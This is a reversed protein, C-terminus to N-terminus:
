NIVVTEGKIVKQTSTILRDVLSAKVLVIDEGNLRYVYRRNETPILELVSPQLDYGPFFEFEVRVTPQATTEGELPADKLLGIITQYYKGFNDKELQTGNYTTTYNYSDKGLSSTQEEDKERTREFVYEGDPTTVKLRSVCEINMLYLLNSRMSFVDQNAWAVMSSDSVRFVVNVGERMIYTGDEDTNGVMLKYEKDNMTYAAIGKPATLGYKELDEQTPNACVAEDATLSYFYPMVDDIFNQNIGERIPEVMIYPSLNLVDAINTSTNTKIVIPQPFNAGSLTITGFDPQEQNGSSDTGLENLLATDIYLLPDAFVGASISASYVKKDGEAMVYYNATSGPLLSGIYLKSTTGDTYTATMTAQPKDLGYQTLDATEGFDRLATLSAMHKAAAAVASTNVTLDEYGQVTFASDNPVITYSGEENEVLINKINGTEQQFITIAPASSAGESSTAGGGDGKPLLLLLATGGGIVVLVVLIIILQRVKKSM